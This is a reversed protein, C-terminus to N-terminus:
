SPRRDARRHQRRGGRDGQAVAAPLQRCQRRGAQCPGEGLDGRGGPHGLDERRPRVAEQDRRPRRRHTAMGTSFTVRSGDTMDNYGLSSTDAVIARVKEYPIGLEEAAM